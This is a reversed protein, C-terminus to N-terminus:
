ECGMEDKQKRLRKITNLKQTELTGVIRVDKRFAFVNTLSKRNGKFKDQSITSAKEQGLSAKGNLFARRRTKSQM